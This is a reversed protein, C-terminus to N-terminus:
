DALYEIVCMDANDGVRKGMRIIRTYGGERRSFRDALQDLKGMVRRDTNYSGLNGEKVQRREKSTLQNYRVMLRSVLERKSALTQKKALTVMKDAHRRLEKAKAVSTVIRERDILDKLMNAILCRRHSSSRGLKFTHKRHRM